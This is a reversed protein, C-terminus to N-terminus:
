STSLSLLPNTLELNAAHINTNGQYSLSSQSSSACDPNILKKSRSTSPNMLGHLSRQTHVKSDFDKEAFELGLVLIFCLLRCCHAQVIIAWDGCLLCSCSLSSYNGAITGGPCLVSVAWSCSLFLSDDCINDSMRFPM